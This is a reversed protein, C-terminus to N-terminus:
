PDEEVAALLVVKAIVDDAEHVSFGRGEERAETAEPLEAALRSPTVTEAPIGPFVAPLSSVGSNVPVSCFFALM